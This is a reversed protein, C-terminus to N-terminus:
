ILGRYLRRYGEAARRWSFDQGMARRQMEQWLGPQRYLAMARHLAGQFEAINPDWFVFGTGNERDGADVVTDALGGTHRVVPLTGYRLAYLQSLGCPEFRSPMLLSDCGAQMRHALSEDFGVRVAVRGPHSRAAVRCAEELAPEGSGLMAVQGGNAVIDSVAELVLDIGKQEAFRSIVGFLMFGAREELGMERQLDSKDLAKGSLRASSFPHHIDPDHAPDWIRDDEGNLIGVLDKDRARLLGQFGQGEGDTQIEHAYTPSVTTIRDSYYLGAKLFSLDGNFELGHMSMYARPLGLPGITEGPFRGQYALNHVTFVTAPIPGGWHRLYAPVLGTQWDNAHIIDPRAMGTESSVGLMAAVRSLLGFRLHNDPWDRGDPGLYPNGPRDYLPPCHVLSVPVGNGPGDGGPGDGGPLRGNILKVEGVGIPDGLHAGREKDKLRDLADPYAPLLLRVDEGAEALAVPLSGAVDALGGTKILPYAESAVFLIRM